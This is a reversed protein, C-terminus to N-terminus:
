DEGRTLKMLEDTTMPITASGALHDVLRQGPSREDKIVLAITSGDDVFEVETEPLIVYKRRIAIPVTVQGKESLRMYSNELYSEVM